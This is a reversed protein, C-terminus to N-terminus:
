KPCPTLFTVSQNTIGQVFVSPWIELESKPRFMQGACALGAFTEQMVSAPLRANTKDFPTDVQNALRTDFNYWLHRFHNVISVDIHGMLSMKRTAAM